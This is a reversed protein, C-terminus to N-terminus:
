DGVQLMVREVVLVIGRRKQGRSLRSEDRRRRRISTLERLRRALLLLLLLLLLRQLREDVRRGRADIEGVREDVVKGTRQRKRRGLRGRIVKGRGRGSEIVMRHIMVLQAVRIRLQLLLFISVLPSQSKGRLGLWELRLRSLVVTLLMLLLLAMRPRM